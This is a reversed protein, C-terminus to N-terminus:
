VKGSSILRVLFLGEGGFSATKVSGMMEVDFNVGPLYAILCGTDLRITEGPPLDYKM